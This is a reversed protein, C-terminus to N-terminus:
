RVTITFQSGPTSGSPVQVNVKTGNPMTVTLVQGPVVGPPVTITMSSPPPVPVPPALAMPEVGSTALNSVPAPPAPNFGAIPPAMPPPAQVGWDDQSVSELSSVTKGKVMQLGGYGVLGLGGLILIMLAYESITSYRSNIADKSLGKEQYNVDPTYHGSSDKSVEFSIIVSSGVGFDSMLNSGFIFPPDSESKGISELWIQTKGDGYEMRAITDVITVKDGVSYDNYREVGTSIDIQEVFNQGDTAM